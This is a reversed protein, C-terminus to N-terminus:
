DVRRGSYRYNDIRPPEDATSSALGIYRPQKDRVVLRINMEVVGQWDIQDDRLMAVQGFQQDSRDGLVTVGSSLREQSSAPRAMTSPAASRASMSSAARTLKPSRLAIQEKEPKFVIKILGNAEVGPRSGTQRAISSGESVFTFKRNTHSPRDITVSDGAPIRWSGIKTSDIMVVADCRTNGNNILRLSYTSGSPLSVYEYGDRAFREAQASVVQVEFHPLLSQM